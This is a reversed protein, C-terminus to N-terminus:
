GVLLHLTCHACLLSFSGNKYGGRKPGSNGEGSGVGGGGNNTGDASRAAGILGKSRFSFFSRIAATVHANNNWESREGHYRPVLQFCAAGRGPCRGSPLSAAPLKEDGDSSQKTASFLERIDLKVHTYNSM